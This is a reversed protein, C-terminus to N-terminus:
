PVGGVARRPTAPAVAEYAAGLPPRPDAEGRNPWFACAREAQAAITLSPNAGLNASVAAGDVVHLGPETWVRHWGDLVGDAAHASIPAGGLIHATFPRNLLVENLGSGPLGDM